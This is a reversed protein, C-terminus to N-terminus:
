RKKRFIRRTNLISVNGYRPTLISFREIVFIHNEEENDYGKDAVVLSLEKM